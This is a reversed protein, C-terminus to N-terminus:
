PQFLEEPMFRVSTVEKFQLATAEIQRWLINVRCSGGSTKNQPDDFTLTLNGKTLSAAKLSFGSLPFESTLGLAKEEDSIEGRLQLKIVDQIPTNTKPIIREVVVLGKQTCQAGGPGQDLAPNYFYLKVPLTDESSAQLFSLNHVLIGSVDKTGTISVRDGQAFKSIDCVQVKGNRQCLSKEDFRLATMIGPQGPLEYVFHWVGQSMGPNDKVLNGTEDFPITTINSNPVPEKTVMRYTFIGICVVGVLLALSLLFTKNNM